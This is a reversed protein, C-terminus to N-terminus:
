NVEHDSLSFNSIIRDLLVLLARRMVFNAKYFAFLSLLFHLFGSRCVQDRTVSAGSRRSRDCTIVQTVLEVYRLLMMTKPCFEGNEVIGSVSTEELFPMLHYRLGDMLKVLFDELMKDADARSLDLSRLVQNLQSLVDSLDVWEFDRTPLVKLLECLSAFVEPSALPSPLSQLSTVYNRWLTVGGALVFKYDKARMEQVIDCLQNAVSAMQQHISAEKDRAHFKSVVYTKEEDSLM